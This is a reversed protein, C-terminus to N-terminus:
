VLTTEKAVEQHARELATLIGLVTYLSSRGDEATGVSMLHGREVWKWIQPRTITVGWDAFQTILQRATMPNPHEVHIRWRAERIDVPQDENANLIKDAEGIVRQTTTFVSAATTYRTAVDHARHPLGQLEIWISWQHLNFPPKSGTSTNGGTGGALGSRISVHHPNLAALLDPVRQLMDDLDITCNTCLYRDTPIPTQCGTRRCLNEIM